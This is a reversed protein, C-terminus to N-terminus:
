RSYHCSSAFSLVCRLFIIDLLLFPGSVVIFGTKAGVALGLLDGRLADDGRGEWGLVDDVGFCVDMCFEGKEVTGDRQAM